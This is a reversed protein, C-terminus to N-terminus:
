LISKNWSLFCTGQKHLFQLVFTFQCYECTFPIYIDLDNEVITGRHIHTTPENCDENPCKLEYTHEKKPKRSDFLFENEVVPFQEICPLEMGNRFIAKLKREEATEPAKQSQEDLMQRIQDLTAMNSRRLASKLNIDLM